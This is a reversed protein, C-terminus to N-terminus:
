IESTAVATVHKNQNGAWRKLMFASTQAVIALAFWLQYRSFVGGTIFFSNTWGADAGLRWAGLVGALVAVPTLVLGSLSVSVVLPPAAHVFLTQRASEYRTAAHHVEM